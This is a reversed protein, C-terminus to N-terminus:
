GRARKRVVGLAALEELLEALRAAQGDRLYEAAFSRGRAGMADRAKPDRSLRRVADALDSPNDPSACVAAGSEKALRVTEGGAMVIVPRGLACCDYLKSPVFDALSTQQPVFSADAARLHRAAEPAPMLDRFSVFGDPLAAARRELEARASGEGVILLQYGEGLMGAAEVAVDLRRSPGLNGAYAWIFRDEPLGLSPRDSDREGADLWDRTTGNPILEIRAGTATAAITRRFPDTVTVIVAASGYLARELKSALSVATPNSLEGIRVAAEPWLDRVDLVWPVRHRRAAIAAAVGVPLPPSSALIVDPRPGAGGVAAAMAAYSGYFGLRNAMTRAPRTWVWVYSVNAGDVSRRLVRHGRYGPHIVGEPHNPVAAVVDVEHGRRLLEGVFAEVRFRAATVEPVYHQTFILTRM